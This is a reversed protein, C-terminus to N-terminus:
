EAKCYHLWLNGDELHRVEDLHFALADWHEGMSEVLSPVGSDCNLSLTLVLSLEDILGEKAFSGNTIGGGQLLVAQIGFNQYLKEALLTCRM